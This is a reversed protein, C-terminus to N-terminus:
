KGIDSITALVQEKLYEEAEAMNKISHDLSELFFALGLGVIVSLFPGLAVRVYDKTRKSYADSARSLITVEWQQNGAVAIESESQRALLLKNKEELDEITRDFRSLALQKDPISELSKRAQDLEDTLAKRKGVAARLLQDEVIWANEIESKLDQRLGALQNDVAVVEPHKETYKQLLEERDVSLRQITYRINSIVASQLYNGIAPLALKNELEDHSQRALSGITEVKLEQGGIEGNLVTLKEELSGIKDLLFRSEDDMGFFTHENMYENRKGKWYELESRVDAIEEAFFDSLEPPAKRKRYYEQFSLTMAHCGLKCIGPHFGTYRIIFANSEGVVDARVAGPVFVWEPGLKRVRVSDDFIERARNFVEESLIVEIQSAVEEAWGLYRVSGGLVSSQEGRMILTRSSSEFVVPKRANLYFAFVTTLAVVSIIIWKRRFIVNLFDRLTIEQKIVNIDAM